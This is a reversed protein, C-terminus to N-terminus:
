YLVTFWPDIRVISTRAYTNTM